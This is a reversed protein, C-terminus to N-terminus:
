GTKWCTYMWQPSTQPPASGRSPIFNSIFNFQYKHNTYNNGAVERVPQPSRSTSHRYSIKALRDIELQYQIFFRL